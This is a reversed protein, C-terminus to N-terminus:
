LNLEEILRRSLVTDYIIKLNLIKNDQDLEVIDVVDFEVLKNNRLTWQYSFYIALSNAQHDEFIGKLHLTSNSTDENLDRYFDAAKKKGYIPSEVMGGEAFLNIVAEINGAELNKLYTHAIESRTM